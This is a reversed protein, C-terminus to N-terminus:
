LSGPTGVWLRVVLGNKWAADLKLVNKSFAAMTTKPFKSHLPPSSDSRSIDYAYYSSSPERIRSSPPRANFADKFAAIDSPQQTQGAASFDVITKKNNSREQQQNQSARMALLSMKQLLAADEELGASPLKSVVYNSKSSSSPPPLASTVDDILIQLLFLTTLFVLTFSLPRRIALM